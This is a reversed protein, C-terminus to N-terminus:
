PVEEWSGITIAPPPPPPTPPAPTGSAEWEDNDDPDYSAPNGAVGDTHCGPDSDDVLGDGDDDITDSCESAAAPCVQLGISQFIGSMASSSPAIFLNTPMITGGTASANGSGSTTYKFSTASVISSVTFTGNFANNSSGSVVIRENTTLRHAGTTTVTVTSGSRSATAIQAQSLSSPSALTSMLSQGGTDGFHIAFIKVGNGKAASAADLAYQTPDVQTTYHVQASLTDVHCTPGANTDHLRVRFNSGFDGSTWTHGTWPGSFTYTTPTGTLVQTEESTWSSGNNWSLDVGLTCAVPVRYAITLSLQTVRPSGGGSTGRVVGFRTTWNNVEALTWAANTFPNKTMVRSVTKYNGSTLTTGADDSQAGTGTGHEARLKLQSNGGSTAALTTLTVSDITANAPLDAGPMLFTEAQNNSSETIYSTGGDDGGVAYTKGLFGLIGGTSWQDYNGIAEPEGLTKTIPSGAATSSFASTQIDISSISAGSPVPLTFGSYRERHGSADSADGAGYAGAPNGWADGNGNQASASAASFGTTGAVSGTPENPEGDSVFVLVKEKTPSHRTSALETDAMQIAEGLNTYGIPNQPLGNQIATGLSAYASSLTMVIDAGRGGNTDAIRGFGVKPSADVGAYLSVLAQAAAKEDPIWQSYGSPYSPYGFMSYSRDLMIMTDACSPAPPPNTVTVSSTCTNSGGANSVTAVYNVTGVGSPTVTVWPATTKAPDVGGVGHDISMSTANSSASWLLTVSQGLPISSPSASLNCAPPPVVPAVSPDQAVASVSVNSWAGKFSAKTAIAFTRKGGSDTHTLTGITCQLTTGYGTGLSITENGTYDYDSGIKALTANVCAEALGLSIRKYESNLVDFRTFFTSAGLSTALALLISSIIISSILAIFGRQPKM